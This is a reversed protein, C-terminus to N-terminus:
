RSEHKVGIDARRKELTNRKKVIEKYSFSECNIDPLEPTDYLSCAVFAFFIFFIVFKQAFTKLIEIFRSKNM